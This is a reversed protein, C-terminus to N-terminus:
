RTTPNTVVFGVSSDSGIVMSTLFYHAMEDVLDKGINSHLV